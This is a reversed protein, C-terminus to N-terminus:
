RVAVPLIAAAARTRVTRGRAGLLGRGGRRDSRRVSEVRRGPNGLGANEHVRAQPRAGRADLFSLSVSISMVAAITFVRRSAVPAPIISHLAARASALPSM